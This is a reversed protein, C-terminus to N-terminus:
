IIFIYMELVGNNIFIILKLVEYLCLGLIYISIFKLIFKFNSMMNKGLDYEM